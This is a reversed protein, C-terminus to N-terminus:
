AAPRESKRQRWGMWRSILTLAVIMGAGLLTNVFVKQRAGALGEVLSAGFYTYVFIYPMAGLASGVAFDRWRIPSLGATVNVAMNPLPLVRVLMAARVGDKALRAELRTIRLSGLGESIAARGLRRAVAFHLNSTVNFAIVNLLLGLPFGFAAGCVMHFLTAPVLLSTLSLYAGFFLPIGWAHDKISQVRGLASKPDLEDKFLVRVAVALVGVAIAAGALRIWQLRRPNSEM